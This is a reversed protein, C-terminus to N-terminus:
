HTGILIMIIKGMRAPVNMCGAIDILQLGPKPHLILVDYQHTVDM